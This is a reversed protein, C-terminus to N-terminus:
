PVAPPSIIWSAFSPQDHGAKLGVHRQGAQRQLVAHVRVEQAFPDSLVLSLLPIAHRRTRDLTRRFHEHRNDLQAIHRQHLSRRPHRLSPLIILGALHWELVIGRAAM